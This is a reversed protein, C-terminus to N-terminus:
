AITCIKVKGYREEITIFYYKLNLNEKIINVTKKIATKIM